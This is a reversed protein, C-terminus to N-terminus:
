KKYRKTHRRKTHRGKKNYKKTNRRKFYRVKGGVPGEFGVVSIEPTSEIPDRQFLESLRKNYSMILGGIKSKIKYCMKCSPNFKSYDDISNRLDNLDDLYMTGVNKNNLRPLYRQANTIQDNSVAIMDEETNFRFIRPM